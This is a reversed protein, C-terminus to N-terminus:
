KRNIRTISDLHSELAKITKQQENYIKQSVRIVDMAKFRGKGDKPCERNIVEM